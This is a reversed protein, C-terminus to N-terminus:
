SWSSSASSGATAATPRARNRDITQITLLHTRGRQRFKRPSIFPGPACINRVPTPAATRGSKPPSRANGGRTSVLEAGDAILTETDVHNTSRPLLATIRRAATTGDTADYFGWFADLPEPRALARGARGEGQRFVAAQPGCNRWGPKHRGKGSPPSCGPPSGVVSIGAARHRCARRCMSAAWASSQRRPRAAILVQLFM